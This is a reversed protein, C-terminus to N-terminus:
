PDSEPIYLYPFKLGTEKAHRRDADIISHVYQMYESYAPDSKRPIEGFYLKFMSDIQEMIREDPIAPGHPHKSNWRYNGNGDTIIMGENILRSLATKIHKYRDKKSQILDECHYYMDRIDFWKESEDNYEDRDQEDLLDRIRDYITDRDAYIVDSILPSVENMYYDWEQLIRKVVAGDSIDEPM